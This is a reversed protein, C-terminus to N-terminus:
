IVQQVSGCERYLCLIIATDLSRAIRLLPDPSTHMSDLYVAHPSRLPAAPPGAPAGSQAYMHAACCKRHSWKPTILPTYALYSHVTLTYHAHSGFSTM